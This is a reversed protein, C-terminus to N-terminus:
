WNGYPDQQHNVFHGGPSVKLSDSRNRMGIWGRRRVLSSLLRPWDYIATGIREKLTYTRKVM